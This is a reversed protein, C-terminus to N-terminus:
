MAMGGNVRLTHGTIFSADDSVLHAVAAAVDEPTALRRLPTQRAALMQLKEPIDGILSTETMGPSVCNVTIGQPGYEAALYRSMTALAAKAAAYATWGITPQGDIAQSTINVIRGWRRDVMQPLCARTMLYAGRLQVDLHSQFDAWESAAFPKGNIRPAANNVLIGVAGFAHM